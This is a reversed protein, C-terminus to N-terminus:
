DGLQTDPKISLITLPLPDQQRMFVRGNSNWSSHLIIPKVGTFLATPAGYVEFERQKMQTLQATNPGIWLGRSERFRVDVKAIKKTTGSGQLDPSDIDLTEIDSIYGLGVHIRSAAVPLTIQGNSVTIAPVVNGNALVAVAEGELYNLGSVTTVALRVKGAEVYANWGSGDVDVGAEDQVEFNNATKNNVKFRGGNLQAPQVENGEADKDAVWEIDSFDIPDGDSLGHAAATVVPPDATTIATITIPTDLSKGDDVFFADQVDTFRRETTREIHRVTKSNITRKVVYYAQEDTDAASPLISAVSEYKGKTDWSCWAVVEQEQNFTMVLGSGDSCVIHVIPDPTAVSAWEKARCQKFLHEALQSLDSGTYGDLTLSYGFSRVSALNKHVFLTTKEFVLPPLHACGTEIQPKMQITDAAFGGDANASIIWASGSTLVIL